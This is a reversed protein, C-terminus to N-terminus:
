YNKDSGILQKEFTIFSIFLTKVFKMFYWLVNEYILKTYNNINYFEIKIKSAGLGNTDTDTYRYSITKLGM